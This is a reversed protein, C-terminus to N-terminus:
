KRKIVSYEKKGADLITRKKNDGEQGKEIKRKQSFTSFLIISKEATKKAKSTERRIKEKM